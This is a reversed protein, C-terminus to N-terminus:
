LKPKRENGFLVYGLTFNWIQNGMNVYSTHYQRSFGRMWSASVELKKYQFGLLIDMGADISAVNSNGLPRRPRTAM